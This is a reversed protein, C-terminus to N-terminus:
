RRHLFLIAVQLSLYVKWDQNFTLETPQQRAKSM